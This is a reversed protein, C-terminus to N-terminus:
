SKRTKVKTNKCDIWTEMSICLEAEIDVAAIPKGFKTLEFTTKMMQQIRNDGFFGALPVICSSGIKSGWRTFVLTVYGYMLEGLDAVPILAIKPLENYSCARVCGNKLSVDTPYHKNRLFFGNGHFEVRVGRRTHSTQSSSSVIGGEPMTSTNPSPAGLSGDNAFPSLAGSYRGNRAANRLSHALQDEPDRTPWDGEGEYLKELMRDDNRVSGNEIAHQPIDIVDGKLKEYLGSLILKKFDVTCKYSSKPVIKSYRHVRKPFDVEFQAFVPKHDSTCYSPLSSYKVLRLLKAHMPLSHWLIRDCYSPIRLRQYENGPLGRVVKFTPLFNIEGESFNSFVRHHLMEDRLEDFRRLTAFDERKLAEHVYDWKEDFSMESPLTRDPDLRYNLDGMWIIHSYQHIAPLAVSKPHNRRELNRMIEEVSANRHSLFKAGEHAALHSSVFCFSTDDITLKVAVAGKNGVVNGIGTAESTMETKGIRAKHKRHVFILLKIEMLHHKAVLLYNDGVARQVCKSFKKSGATPSVVTPSFPVTQRLSVPTTEEPVAYFLSKTDEVPQLNKGPLKSDNLCLVYGPKRREFFQYGHEEGLFSAPPIDIDGDSSMGEDDPDFVMFGGCRSVAWNESFSEDQSSIDDDDEFFSSGSVVAVHEDSQLSRLNLACLKNELRPINPAKSAEIRGSFSESSRTSLKTDTICEASKSKSSILELEAKINNTLGSDCDLEPETLVRTLGGKTFNSKKPLGDDSFIKSQNPIVRKEPLDDPFKSPKAPRKALPQKLARGIKRLKRGPSSSSDGPSAEALANESNNEAIPSSVISDSDKFSAEQAAVAIIDYPIENLGLWEVLDSPPPANGVNWTCVRLRFTEM